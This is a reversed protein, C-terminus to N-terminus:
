FQTYIFSSGSEFKGFVFILMLLFLVLSYFLFESRSIVYNALDIKTKQIWDVFEFSVIGLVAIVLGRSLVESNFLFQFQSLSWVGAMNQFLKIATPFDAAKFFITPPVILVFFTFSIALANLIKPFRILGTRQYFNLRARKTTSDLAILVGQILGYILFNYTGGHWLGLILFTIIALGRAGLVTAPTSLLPYFITNKIWTSLSMHWRNWYETINKSFFPRNFNPVLDFGFMLASGLAIDTYGSFDAYIQYKALLTALAVPAGKYTESNNFVLEVIPGLNDAVVLKKFLGALILLVGTFLIKKNVEREKYLQPLFHHAPEIPGALLHPFFSVFLAYKGLNKEAPIKARYVDLVYGISQFSYFSIGLPILVNIPNLLNTSAALPNWYKTVFLLALEILVSFFLAGKKIWEPRASDILRAAVYSVIITNLIFGIYFANFSLYFIFSAIILVPTRWSKPSNLYIALSLALFLYYPLSIFSM